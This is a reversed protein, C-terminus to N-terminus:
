GWRARCRNKRMGLAQRRGQVVLRGIYELLDETSDTEIEADAQYADEQDEASGLQFRAFDKEARAAARTEDPGVFLWYWRSGIRFRVSDNEDNGYSVDEFDDLRRLTCPYAYRRLRTTCM